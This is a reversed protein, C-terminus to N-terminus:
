TLWFALVWDPITQLAICNKFHFAQMLPKVQWSYSENEFRKLETSALPPGSFLPTLNM